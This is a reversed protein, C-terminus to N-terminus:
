QSEERKALQLILQVEGRPIGLTKTISDISKGSSYLEFLQPYRDRVLEPVQPEQQPEVIPEASDLVAEEAVTQAAATQVAAENLESLTVEFAVVNSTKQGSDQGAQDLAPAATSIPKVAFTQERAALEVELVRQRLEAIQEQQALQKSVFEQKMQSVLDILEGNEQEIDAMYQELTAELEHNAGAKAQAAAKREPIFLAYVLAALGLLVIYVWPDSFSVTM